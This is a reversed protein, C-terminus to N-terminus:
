AQPIKRRLDNASHQRRSFARSESRFAFFVARRIESCNTAKLANARPPIQLRIVGFALDRPANQFERELHARFNLQTKFASFFLPPVARRKTKRMFRM